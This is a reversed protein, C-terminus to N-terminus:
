IEIGIPCHDSGTVNRLIFAEKLFPALKKSVFVYDIRWGLNRERANFSYPWWTFNGGEKNFKRFSDVFGLDTIEDLKKREEPTFM